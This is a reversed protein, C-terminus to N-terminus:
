ISVGAEKMYNYVDHELHFLVSMRDLDDCERYFDIRRNVKVTFDIIAQRYDGNNRKIYQSVGAQFGAYELSIREIEAKQRNILNLAEKNLNAYCNGFDNPCNECDDNSCCVMAKIIENDTM